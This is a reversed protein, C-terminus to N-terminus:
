LTHMPILAFSCGSRVELLRVTEHHNSQRAKAMPTVGEDDAISPDADGELLLVRARETYGYSCALWLATMGDAHRADVEVRGDELLLRIVAVYDSGPSESACSPRMLTTWSYFDRLTPDAGRALLLRVVEARGMSCALMLPTVGRKGQNMAAGRNLLFCAAEMSGAHCAFHLPGGCAWGDGEAELLGPDENLLRRLEEVDNESAAEHVPAM